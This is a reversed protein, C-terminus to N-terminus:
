LAELYPFNERILDVPRTLDRTRGIEIAVVERGDDIARQYTDGLDYPPGPLGDLYEALDPGFGFLPAGGHPNTPDDDAIRLVRGDVIKLPRKEPGAPPDTRWAIAGAAGSAAYAETFRAVDGREFVTDAATILLPPRAGGRLARATADATGDHRPQRVLSVPVGFASGDGVLREIQEALHGVVLTVREVAPALERLLTEIVPRGDIPLVAKAYHDTLPRLRTGAGAAM